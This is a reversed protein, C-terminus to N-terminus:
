HKSRPLNAKVYARQSAQMGRVAADFTEQRMIVSLEPYRSMLNGMTVDTSSANM